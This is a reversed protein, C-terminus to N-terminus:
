NLTELWDMFSKTQKGTLSIDFDKEFKEDFLWRFFDPDLESAYVVYQKFCMGGPNSLFNSKLTKEVIQVNKM